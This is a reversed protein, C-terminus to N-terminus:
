AASCNSGYPLETRLRMSVRGLAAEAAQCLDSAEPDLQALLRHVIHVAQQTRPSLAGWLRDAEATKGALIWQAHTVAASLLNARSKGQLMHQLAQARDAPNAASLEKVLLALEPDGLERARGVLLSMECSHVIPTINGLMERIGVQKGKEDMVRHRAYVAFAPGLLGTVLDPGFLGNREFVEIRGLLEAELKGVFESWCMTVRESEVHPVCVLLCSSSLSSVRGHRFKAKRETHAPWSVTPAFGADFLAQFFAEWAELKKHGFMVLMRGSPRIVRRAERFSDRLKGMFHLGSKPSPALKHRRDVIAEEAKPTMVGNFDGPVIDSLLPRMWVYFVDSLYAYAISDYYPPDIAVIDVSGRDLPVRAADSLAVVGRSPIRELHTAIKGIWTRASSWGAAGPSTVPVEVYNWVMPIAQRGFMNAPFEGNPQWWAHRTGYMVLRNFTLALLIAAARGEPKGSSLLALQVARIEHFVETLAVAQRRNYLDGTHTVGYQIAWTHRIGNLDFPESPPRVLERDAIKRLKVTSALREDTASVAQYVRNYGDQVYKAYLREGLVGKVGLEQLYSTEVRHDCRPCGAGHRSVTGLSAAAQEVKSEPHSVIFDFRKGNSSEELRVATARNGRALWRDRLLPVEIGCSPCQYIRCWFFALAPQSNDGYLKPLAHAIRREVEGSADRFLATVAGSGGPLLELAVRLATVAVPNLDSAFADMGLRLAEIPFSGGGAFTDAVRVRQERSAVLARALEILTEDRTAAFSALRATLLLLRERTSAGDPVDRELRARLDPSADIEAVTPCAAAFLASRCIALPRRAWWLQLTSIHEQRISKEAACAASVAQIPFDEEILRPPGSIPTRAPRLSRDRPRSSKVPERDTASTSPMSAVGSGGSVPPSASRAEAAPPYKAALARLEDLAPAHHELLWHVDKASFKPFSDRHQLTPRHAIMAAAAGESNLFVCLGRVLTEDDRDHRIVLVDGACLATQEIYAAALGRGIWIPVRRLFLRPGSFRSLEKPHALHAGYDVWLRGLEVEFPHIDGTRACPLWGVRKQESSYPKAQAISATQPPTGCGTEYLKVGSLVLFGHVNERLGHVPRLNYHSGVVHHVIAHGTTVGMPRGPLPDATIGQVRDMFALPVLFVLETGERTMECCREFFLYERLRGYPPNSVVLNFEDYRLRAPGFLESQASSLFDACYIRLSDQMCGLEAALNKRALAVMEPDIDVGVLRKAVDPIGAHTMARAASVLLAGDGCAPDLVRWESKPRRAASCMHAAIAEPTM